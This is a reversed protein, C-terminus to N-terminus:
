VLAPEQGVVAAGSQGEGHGQRLFFKMMEYVLILAFALGLCLLWQSGSLSVLGLIRQFIRLETSLLILLISVGYYMLQQRDTLISRQFVTDTESLSSIGMAVNFLSFIVFGMTAAVAPDIPEYAAELVLTGLAILFGVFSMRMWQAQSLIPQSLPRPKKEMLGPLPQSLGLAIAIPVQIFFNIWLVVLAGFPQGGAIYFM